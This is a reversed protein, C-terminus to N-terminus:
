PFFQDYHSLQVLFLYIFLYIIETGIIKVIVLIAGSGWHNQNLVEVM